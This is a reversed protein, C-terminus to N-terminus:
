NGWIEEIDKEVLERQLDSMPQNNQKEFLESFLEIPKKDTNDSGDLVEGQTRTRTNDYSLKMINPYVVRLKSIADPVDDEDTLIAHIYDDTDTGEYFDKSVLEDYTGKIERLDHMPELSITRIQIDGKSETEIVTVSKEHDKESFSYKLPTGCYRIEERTVKQPGHLHGLAVYDFDDFIAADVNDQGGVNEESECREAGTVFQHAVLINRDEKNLDIHEVAVRVTDNYDSIEEDPFASRVTQPKVFPLLHINVKGGKDELTYVQVEGKYERALHIGMSDLLTSHDSFRVASDHNGNIAFMPIGKKEIKILFDDWIKMADESPISRDYVDGAVIIGDPKEETIIQLIKKLIYKQDEIMSFENLRKGLHLDSLHILKM